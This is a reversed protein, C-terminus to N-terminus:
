FAHLQIECCNQQNFPTKHRKWCYKLWIVAVAWMKWTKGPNWWYLAPARFHRAWPWEWSFSQPDWTARVWSGPNCTLCRVASGYLVEVTKYKTLHQHSVSHDLIFDAIKASIWFVYIIFLQLIASANTIIDSIVLLAQPM